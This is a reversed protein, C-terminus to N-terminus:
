TKYHEDPIPLASSTSLSGEIFYKELHVRMALAAKAKDRERLADVIDQHEAVTDSDGETNGRLVGPSMYIFWRIAETIIHRFQHLGQSKTAGLLELHFQMDKATFEAGTSIDQRMSDVISQLANVEEDTVRSVLLSMIGIEISCRVVHLDATGSFRISPFGTGIVIQKRDFDTVFTGRGHERVIIGEAALTALSERVVLASVGLMSALQRESPLQDGQQLRELLVFRKLIEVVQGSLGTKSVPDIFQSNRYDNVTNSM